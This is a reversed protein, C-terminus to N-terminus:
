PSTIFLYQTKGSIFIFCIGKLNTPVMDEIVNSKYSM